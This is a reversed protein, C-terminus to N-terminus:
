DNKSISRKLCSCCNVREYCFLKLSKFISLNIIFIGNLAEEVVTDKYESPIAQTNVVSGAPFYQNGHKSKVMYMKHFAEMNFSFNSIPTLFFAFLGIFVEVTGGLDGILEILSYVHKEHSLKKPHVIYNNWYVADPEWTAPARRDKM